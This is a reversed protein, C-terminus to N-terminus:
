FPRIVLLVPATVAQTPIFAFMVPVQAALLSALVAAGARMGKVSLRKEGPV